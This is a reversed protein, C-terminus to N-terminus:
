RVVRFRYRVGDVVAVEGPSFYETKLDINGSGDLDISIGDNTYDGDVQLNDALYAAYRRGRFLLEGQLQTMCYYNLRNEHWSVPTTYIWLRYDGELRSVGSVAALPLDLANAFRGRGRNVLPPGDDSLDRNRNRDVYLVTKDPSSDLLFGYQRGGLLFVGYKQEAGAFSISHRLPIGPQPSLAVRNPIAAMQFGVPRFGIGISILFEKAPDIKGDDGAEPPSPMVAPRAADEPPPPSAPQGSNEASPHEQEAQFGLLPRVSDLFETLAGDPLERVFLVAAVVLILLPFFWRRGRKSGSQRSVSASDGRILSERQPFQSERNEM